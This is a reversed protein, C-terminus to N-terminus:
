AFFQRRNRVVLRSERERHAATCVILVTPTKPYLRGVRQVIAIGEVAPWRSRIEDAVQRLKAEAMATYAEYELYITEHPQTRTTVGRVVGTFCCIAGTQLLTIKDQLDNLDLKEETIALYTPLSGGSVPPFLAVEANLPIIDENFAFERNISLLASGLAPTLAPYIERLRNKLEHVNAGVPLDLTISRSGVLDKLTAFFLVHITIM